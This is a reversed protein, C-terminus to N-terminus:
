YKLILKFLELSDFLSNIVEQSLYNAITQVHLPPFHELIVDHTIVIEQILM